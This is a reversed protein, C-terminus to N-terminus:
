SPWICPSRRLEGANIHADNRVTRDAPGAVRVAPRPAQRSAPASSSSAAAATDPTPTRSASAARGAVTLASPCSTTRYRLYETGRDSARAEPEQMDAIESAVLEPSGDCAYRAGNGDSSYEQYKGAVNSRINNSMLSIGIFLLAFGAVALGGALWFLNTRKM